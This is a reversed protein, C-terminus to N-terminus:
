DIVISAVDTYVVSNDALVVYGRVLWTGTKGTADKQFAVVDVDADASSVGKTVTKNTTNLVLDNATGKRTMLVGTEKVEGSRAMLFYFTQGDKCLDVVAATAAPAEAGYVAELTCDTSPAVFTFNPDVSVIKGDLTWYSFDLGKKAEVAAIAGFARYVTVERTGNKITIGATATDRVYSAYVETTGNVVYGEEVDGFIKWSDFKYGKLTPATVDDTTLVEGAAVEKVAVIKGTKSDKFYVNYTETEAADEFVAIIATAKGAKFTLTADTGLVADNAAVWYKFGEGTATLTVTDGAAAALASLEVAEGNVTAAVTGEGKVTVNIPDKVVPPEPLEAVGQIYANSKFGLFADRTATTRGEADAAGLAVYGTRYVHDGAGGNLAPDKYTLWTGETDITANAVDIGTAKVYGGNAIGAAYVAHVNRAWFLGSNYKNYEFSATNCNTQNKGNIHFIIAFGGEPIVPRTASTNGGLSIVKYYDEVATPECIYARWASSSGGLAGGFSVVDYVNVGPKFIINSSNSWAANTGDYDAHSVYLRDYNLLVPTAAPIVYDTGNVTVASGGTTANIGATSKFHMRNIFWSGNVGSDSIANLGEQDGADILELGAEIFAEFGGWFTPDFYEEAMPAFDRYYNYANTFAVNGVGEIKEEEFLFNTGDARPTLAQTYLDLQDLYFDTTGGND